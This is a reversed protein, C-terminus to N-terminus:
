SGTKQGYVQEAVMHIAENVKIGSRSAHRGIEKMLKRDSLIENRVTELGEEREMSKLDAYDDGSYYNYYIGLRALTADPLSLM